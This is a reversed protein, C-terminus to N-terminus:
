PGEILCTLDRLEEASIDSYESGSNDSLTPARTARFSSFKGYPREDKAAVLGHPKQPTDHPEASPKFLIKEDAALSSAFAEILTADHALIALEDHRIDTPKSPNSVSNNSGPLETDTGSIRTLSEEELPDEELDQTSLDFLFDFGHLAATTEMNRITPTSFTKLLSQGYTSSKGHPEEPPRQRCTESSAADASLADHVLVPPDCIEREVQTNSPFGLDEDEVFVPPPAEITCLKPPPPIADSISAKAREGNIKNPPKLTCKESSSVFHPKCAPSRTRNPTIAQNEERTRSSEHTFPQSTGSLRKKCAVYSGPPPSNKLCKIGPHPKSPSTPLFRGNVNLIGLPNRTSQGQKQPTTAPSSNHQTISSDRSVNKRKQASKPLAWECDHRQGDNTSSQTVANKQTKTALYDDTRHTPQGTTRMSYWQSGLRCQSAGVKGLPGFPQETIGAKTRAEREKQLKEERKQLNLKRRAERDRIRAAREQLEAAREIQRLERESLQRVGSSKQYARKAQKSTQPRRRLPSEAM